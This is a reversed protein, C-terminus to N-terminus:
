LEGGQAETQLVIQEGILMAQCIIGPIGTPMFHMLIFDITVTVRKIVPLSGQEGLSLFLAIIKTAQVGVFFIERLQVNLISHIYIINGKVAMVTEM